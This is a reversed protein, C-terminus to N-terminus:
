TMSPRLFIRVRSGETDTLAEDGAEVLGTMAPDSTPPRMHGFLLLRGQARLLGAAALVLPRDLRVARITVLDASQRASEARAFDEARALVVDTDTMSLLRVVEHLFATRRSRPEIMTLRLAPRLLKMPIAPSGAGSGIDIWTGSDPAHKLAAIPEFVLRDLSADDADGVRLATLNMRQNWAALLRLFAELQAAAREELVLAHRRARDQLRQRLDNRM